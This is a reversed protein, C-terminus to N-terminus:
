AFYTLLDMLSEAKYDLEKMLEEDPESLDPIMIVHCGARSAAMVGNPADEVAYAEGPEVGMESCAYLYVDPAPKGKAVMAACIIKDFYDFLGVRKLYDETKDLNTATAVGLRYGREKLTALVEDVHPKKPIGDLLIRRDMLEMRRKRVKLYAEREGFVEESVDEVFPHGLSRFRLGQEVTMTYGLEKAAKRWYHQYIKETDLLTGDMDFLITEIGEIAKAEM